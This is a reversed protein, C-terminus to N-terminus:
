PAPAPVPETEVAADEPAPWVVTDDPGLFLDDLDSM